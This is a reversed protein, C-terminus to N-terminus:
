QSSDLPVVRFPSRTSAPRGEVVVGTEDSSFTLRCPDRADALSFAYATPAAVYHIRWGPLPEDTGWAMKRALDGQKGSIGRFEALPAWKAVADWAPYAAGVSKRALVRNILDAGALAEERRQAQFASESEEHLCQPARPVQASAPGAAFAVVVFLRVIRSVSM